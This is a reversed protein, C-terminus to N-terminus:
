SENPTPTVWLARCNSFHLTASGEGCTCLAAISGPIAVSPDNPADYSSDEPSNWDANDARPAGPTPSDGDLLRLVDQATERAAVRCSDAALTCYARVRAIAAEAARCDNYQREVEEENEAARRRASQWAARYRNREQRLQEEYRDADDKHFQRTREAGSALDAYSQCDRHTQDREAVLRELEPQVVAIVAQVLTDTEGRCMACGGDYRHQDHRRYPRDKFWGGEDPADQIFQAPTTNLAEAIRARLDDPM